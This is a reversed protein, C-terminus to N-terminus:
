SDADLMQADARGGQVQADATIRLADFQLDDVRPWRDGDIERRRDCEPRDEASSGDVADGGRHGSFRVRLVLM